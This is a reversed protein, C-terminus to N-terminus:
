TETNFSIESVVLTMQTGDIGEAFHSEKSIDSNNWAIDHLIEPTGDRIEESQVIENPKYPKEFGTSNQIICRNNLLSSIFCSLFLFENSERFCDYKDSERQRWPRM